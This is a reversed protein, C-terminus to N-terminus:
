SGMSYLIQILIIGIYLIELKSKEYGLYILLICVGIGIYMYM